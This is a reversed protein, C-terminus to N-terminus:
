MQDDDRAGVGQQGQRSQARPSILSNRLSSRRKV